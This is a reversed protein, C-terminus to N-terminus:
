LMLISNVEWCSFMHLTLIFDLNMNAFSPACKYRLAANIRYLSALKKKGQM